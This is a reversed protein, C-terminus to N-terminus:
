SRWWHLGELRSLPTAAYCYNANPSTLSAMAVATLVIPVEIHSGDSDADGFKPMNNRQRQPKVCGHIFIPHQGNARILQQHPKDIM